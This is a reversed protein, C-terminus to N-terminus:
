TLPIGQLFRKEPFEPLNAQALEIHDSLLHWHCSKCQLNLVLERSRYYVLIM